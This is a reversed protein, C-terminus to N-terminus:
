DIDHAFNNFNKCNSDSRRYRINCLILTVILKEYKVPVYNTLWRSYKIIGIGFKM